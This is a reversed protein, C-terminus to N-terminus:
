FIKLLKKIASDWWVRVWRKWFNGLGAGTGAGAGSDRFAGTSWLNKNITASNISSSSPPKSTTTTIHSLSSTLSPSNEKALFWLIPFFNFLFLGLFFHMSHAVADKIKLSYQLLMYLKRCHQMIPQLRIKPTKKKSHYERFQM